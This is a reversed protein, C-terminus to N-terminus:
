NYLWIDIYHVGVSQQSSKVITIELRGCHKQPQQELEAMHLKAFAEFYYFKDENCKGARNPSLLPDTPRSEIARERRRRMM